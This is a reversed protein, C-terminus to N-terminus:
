TVCMSEEILLGHANLRFRSTKADKSPIYLVSKLVDYIEKYNATQIIYFVMDITPSIRYSNNLRAETVNFSHTAVDFKQHLAYKVNRHKFTSIVNSLDRAMVFVSSSDTFSSAFPITDKLHKNVDRLQIPKKSSAQKPDLLSLNGRWLLSYLRGQTTRICKKIEKKKYNVLDFCVKSDWNEDFVSAPNDKSRISRRAREKIQIHYHIHEKAKGWKGTYAEQTDYLTDGEEFQCTALADAFSEPVAWTFGNFFNM